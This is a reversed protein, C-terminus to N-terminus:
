HSKRQVNVPPESALIDRARRLYESAPDAMKSDILWSESGCAVWIADQTFKERILWLLALLVPEQWPALPV